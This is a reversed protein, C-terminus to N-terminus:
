KEIIKWYGRKDSGIRKIIGQEKLDKIKRKVTSLSMNLREVIETGTINKNQRLLSFVTDHVTDNKTKVTDVYHIHMERNQLTNNEGLL